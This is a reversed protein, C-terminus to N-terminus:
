DDLSQYVSTWFDLYVPNFSPFGARQPVHSGTNYMWQEGPQHMLPLSGLRRM